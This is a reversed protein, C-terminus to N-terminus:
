NKGMLLVVGWPLNSQVFKWDLLAEFKLGANDEAFKFRCILLVSYYTLFRHNSRQMSRFMISPDKPLVFLFVVILMAATSDGIRFKPNETILSAWGPMFKPERFLWLGVACLFLAAVASEHFSMSGLARYKEELMKQVGRQNESSMMRSRADNKKNFSVGFFVVILYVWAIFVNVLMPPVNYAM